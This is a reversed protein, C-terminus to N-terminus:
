AQKRAAIAEIEIKLPGNEAVRPLEKVAVTSRAPRPDDKFYEMYVENVAGSEDMNTLFLTTKVVDSLTLGEGALVATLNDLAKATQQRVDADATKTAPDAGVQGAVFFLDGVGRVPSYPGFVKASKDSM